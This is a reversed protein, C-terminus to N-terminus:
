WSSKTVGPMLGYSTLERLAIRSVGFDRYYARSRGTLSCRNRHRVRSGNRPMEALQFVAKMKAQFDDGSERIVKKLAARKACDRDAM